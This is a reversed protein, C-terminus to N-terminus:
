AIAKRIREKIVTLDIILVSEHRPMQGVYKDGGLMELAKTGYHWVTWHNQAVALIDPFGKILKLPDLMMDKSSYEGDPLPTDTVRHDVITKANLHKALSLIFNRNFSMESLIKVVAVHVLDAPSYLRSSGRGKADAISPTVLGDRAWAQLTGPNVETIAAVQKQTFEMVYLSGYNTM